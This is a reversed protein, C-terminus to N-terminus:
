AIEQLCEALSRHARARLMFVAGVSRRLEAAVEQIPMESLDYMEVVRRYVPPLGEVAQKLSAQAEAGAARRSPTSSTVCVREYLATFSDDRNRPALRRCDGGRKEAELARVADILNRKALAMLWASFSEEGRPVFGGISIFVDTYAEQMVDDLSIMSQWREAISGHLSRRVYPGHRALLDVLAEGDGAIANKLLQDDSTAMPLAEMNGGNKTFPQANM